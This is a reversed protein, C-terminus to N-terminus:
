KVGYEFLKKKPDDLDKLRAEIVERFLMMLKWMMTNNNSSKHKDTANRVWFPSRLAVEDMWDNLDYNWGKHAKAFRVLDILTEMSMEDVWKWIQRDSRVPAKHLEIHREFREYIEAVREMDTDTM